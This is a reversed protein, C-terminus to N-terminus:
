QTPCGAARSIGSDPPLSAGSTQIDLVADLAYFGSMAVVPPQFNALMSATASLNSCTFTLDDTGSPTARNCASLDSRHRGHRALPGAAIWLAALLLLRM